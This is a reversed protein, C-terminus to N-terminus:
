ISKVLFLKVTSEIVIRIVFQYVNIKEKSIKVLHEVKNCLRPLTWVFSNLFLISLKQFFEYTVITNIWLSVTHSRLALGAGYMYRVYMKTYQENM